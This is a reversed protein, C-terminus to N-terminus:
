RLANRGRSIAEAQSLFEQDSTEGCLPAPQIGQTVEPQGETSDGYDKWRRSSQEGVDQRDRGTCVRVRQALVSETDGFAGFGFQALLLAALDFSTRRPPGCQTDRFTGDHYPKVATIHSAPFNTFGIELDDDPLRYGFRAIGAVDTQYMRVVLFGFAPEKVQEAALAQLGVLVDRKQDIAALFDARQRFKDGWFGLVNQVPKMDRHSQSHKEM